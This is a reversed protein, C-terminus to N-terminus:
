SFARRAVCWFVLSQRGKHGAFEEHARPRLVINSQSPIMNPNYGDHIDSQFGDRPGPMREQNVQEFDGDSM